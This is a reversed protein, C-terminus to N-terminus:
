SSRRIVATDGIFGIQTGGTFRMAVRVNDSAETQTMDVYVAKNWDSLLDTGFHLNALQAGLLTDNPFYNPTVIEYGLFMTPRDEGVFTPSFGGSTVALGSMARQLLALSKRSMYIVTEESGEIDSPMNSVLTTLHTLIGTTGDADATFAGAVLSEFGPTGAVVRSLIGGFNTVANGGSTSGDTENYNGHWINKQLGQGAIRALYLLMFTRFNDPVKDGLFGRGTNKAEWDQRFDDKCFQEELKLRTPTLIAEDLTLDDEQGAWDCAFPMLSGGSLRKMVAQKKIGEHITLQKKAISDASLIAPAIYPLALEGAYSTTFTNELSNAM